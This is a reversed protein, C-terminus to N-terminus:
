PSHFSIKQNVGLFTCHTGIFVAKSELTLLLFWMVVIVGLLRIWDM